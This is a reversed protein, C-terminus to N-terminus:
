RQAVENRKLMWANRMGREMGEMVVLLGDRFRQEAELGGPVGLGKPIFDPEEALEEFGM